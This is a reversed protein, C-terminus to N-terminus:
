GIEITEPPVHIVEGDRCIVMAVGAEKHKRRAEKMAEKFARDLVEDMKPSSLSFERGSGLEYVASIDFNEDSLIEEIEEETWIM